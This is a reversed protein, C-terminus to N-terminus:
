LISKLEVEKQNDTNKIVVELEHHSFLIKEILESSIKDNLLLIEIDRLKSYYFDREKQIVGIVKKLDKVNSKLTTADNQAEVLKLNLAENERNTQMMLNEYDKIISEYEEHIHHSNEVPNFLYREQPERVIAPEEHEILKNFQTIECYTAKKETSAKNSTPKILKTNEKSLIKSTQNKLRVTNNMSNSRKIQFSSKSQKANSSDNISNISSNLDSPAVPNIKQYYMRMWQLFELNDQFKGNTLKAIEFVKGVKCKTFAEQLLKYNKHVNRDEVKNVQKVKKMNISNPHCKNFIECYTYGFAADEIKDIPTFNEAIWSLLAKATLERDSVKIENSM